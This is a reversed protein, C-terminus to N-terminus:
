EKGRRCFDDITEPAVLCFVVVKLVLSFENVDDEWVQRPVLRHGLKSRLRQLM